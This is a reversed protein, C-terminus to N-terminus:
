PEVVLSVIMNVVGFSVLLIAIVFRNSSPEVVESSSLEYQSEVCYFSTVPEEEHLSSKDVISSAHNYDIKSLGDMRESGLSAVKCWLPFGFFYYWLSKCCNKSSSTALAGLRSQRSFLNNTFRLFEDGNVGLYVLGPMIFCAISGGIAGVFALVLGLDILYIGLVLSIVNLVTM